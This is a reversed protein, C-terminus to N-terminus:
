LGSWNNKIQKLVTLERKNIESKESELYPFYTKQFFSNVFDNNCILATAYFRFISANGGIDTLLSQIKRKELLEQLRVNLHSLKDYNEFFLNVQNEYFCKIFEIFKEYDLMSRVQLHINNQTQDYILGKPINELSALEYITYYDALQGGLENILLREVDNFRKMVKLGSIQVHEYETLGFSVSFGETDTHHEFIVNRELELFNYGDSGIFTCDTKIHEILEKQRM